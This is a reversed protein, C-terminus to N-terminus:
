YIIIDPEAPGGALPLLVSDPAETTVLRASEIHGRLRNGAISWSVSRSGDERSEGIDVQATGLTDGNTTFMVGFGMVYRSEVGCRDDYLLGTCGSLSFSAISSLALLVAPQLDQRPM